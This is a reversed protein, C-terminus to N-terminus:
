YDWWVSSTAFGNSLTSEEGNRCACWGGSFDLRDVGIATWSRPMRGCTGSVAMRRELATISGHGSIISVVTVQSGEGIESFRKVTCDSSEARGSRRNTLCLRIFFNKGKRSVFTEPVELLLLWAFAFRHEKSGKLSPACRQPLLAAVIAIVM